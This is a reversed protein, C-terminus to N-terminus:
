FAVKKVNKNYPMNMGIAIILVCKPILAFVCLVYSCIGIFM